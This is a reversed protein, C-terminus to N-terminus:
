TVGGTLEALEANTVMTVGDHSSLERLLRALRSWDANQEIEWSHGWLHIVGGREYVGQFVRRALIDWNRWTRVINPPSATLRVVRLGDAKYRAAHTTTSMQLPDPSAEVSFRRTTRGVRFGARRVMAVHEQHYAGYPYCFSTVPGGIIDEVARKGDTIEGEARAPDIETLKPHTLTHSGVEFRTSLDGLAAHSLRHARPIEHSLPAVYFTGPCGCSHLLDALKADLAHGDDWSTTVLVDPM